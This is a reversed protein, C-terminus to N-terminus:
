LFLTSYLMNFQITNPEKPAAKFVVRQPQFDFVVEKTTM